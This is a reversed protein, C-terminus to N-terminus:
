SELAQILQRLKERVEGDAIRELLDAEPGELPPAPAAPAPYLGEFFYAPEVKLIGALRYLTSAAIRNVGREYKRVQQYTMGLAEGVGQLSMARKARAEALRLGIHKDILNDSM